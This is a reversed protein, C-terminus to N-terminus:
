GNATASNAASYASASKASADLSAYAMARYVSELVYPVDSGYHHERFEDLGAAIMADTVEIM